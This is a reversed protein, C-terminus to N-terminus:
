ATTPEYTTAHKPMILRLFYAYVVRQAKTWFSGVAHVGVDPAGHSWLVQREHDKAVVWRLFLPHVPEVMKRLLVHWIVLPLKILLQDYAVSTTLLPVLARKALLLLQWLVLQIGLQVAVSEILLGDLVLCAKEALLLAM